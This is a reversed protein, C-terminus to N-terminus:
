YTWNINNIKDLSDDGWYETVAKQLEAFHKPDRGRFDTAKPIFSSTKNDYVQLLNSGAVCISNNSDFTLYGSIAPPVNISNINTITISSKDFDAIIVRQTEEKDASKPLQEIFAIKALDASFVPPYLKADPIDSTYVINGDVVFSHYVPEDSWYPVNKAHIIKETNPILAFSYGIYHGTMEGNTINYVFFEATSPNVHTTVGVATDSLWQCNLIDNSLESDVAIDLVSKGNMDIIGFKLVNGETELVSRRYLIKTRDPSLVPSYKGGVDIIKIKKESYDFCCIEGEREFIACRLGPNKDKMFLSPINIGSALAIACTICTITFGTLIVRRKTQKM